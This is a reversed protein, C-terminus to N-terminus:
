GSEIPPNKEKDTETKEQEEQSKQYYQLLNTQKKETKSLLVYDVWDNEM